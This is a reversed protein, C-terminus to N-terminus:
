VVAVLDTSTAFEDADDTTATHRIESLWGFPGLNVAESKDLM